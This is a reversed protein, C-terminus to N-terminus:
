PDADEGHPAQYNVLDILLGTGAHRTARERAGQLIKVLDVKTDVEASVHEVPKGITRNMLDTFAQIGPPKEWVEIIENENEGGDLKIKAQEETVLTFKGGKKNRAVLYKRGEASAIQARVLPAMQAMVM